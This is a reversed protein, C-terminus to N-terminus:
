ARILVQKIEGFYMRHFDRKPYFKLVRRDRFQQPQLDQYYIKRCVLVLRAEAFYIAGRNFVPTLGTAAVKDIERGSKSGCLNLRNRYREIFFSLTFRESQELFEYTYRTPRVFIFTVPKNWIIGLGGWSATMMNFSKRTGATILTWDHDFLRFTNDALREPRITKFETTSM